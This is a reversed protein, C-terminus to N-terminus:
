GQGRDLRMAVEDLVKGASELAAALAALDAAKAPDSLRGAVPALALCRAAHFRLAEDLTLDTDTTM